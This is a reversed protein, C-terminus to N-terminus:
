RKIGLKEFEAAQEKDYKERERKIVIDILDRVTKVGEKKMAAVIERFIPLHNTKYNHIEAAIQAYADHPYFLLWRRVSNGPFTDFDVPKGNYIDMFTQLYKSKEKGRQLDSRSDVWKKHELDDPTWEPPAIMGQLSRKAKSTRQSKFYAEAGTPYFYIPIKSTQAIKDIEFLREVVHPNTQTNDVYIHIDIVYKEMPTIVDKNSVIREEQESTERSIGWYDVPFVKYGAATLAQGDLHVVSDRTIGTNYDTRAFNGYKQRMTSLFFPYGRNLSADAATGGVFALKVGDEKLMNLVRNHYTAHFLDKLHVELLLSKLAIM